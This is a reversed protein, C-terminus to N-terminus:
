RDKRRQPKIASSWHQGVFFWLAYEKTCNHRLAISQTAVTEVEVYGAKGLVAESLMTGIAECFDQM